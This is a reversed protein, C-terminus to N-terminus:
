FYVKNNLHRYHSRVIAQERAKKKTDKKSVYRESKIKSALRSQFFLKKHKLVLKESTEWDSKISYIM